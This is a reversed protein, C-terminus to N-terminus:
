SWPPCVQFNRARVPLTSEIPMIGEMGGSMTNSSSSTVAGVGTHQQQQGPSTGAQPPPSTVTNHSPTHNSNFPSNQTEVINNHNHNAQDINLESSPVGEAKDSECGPGVPGSQGSVAAATTNGGSEDGSTPDQQQPQILPDDRTNITEKIEDCQMNTLMVKPSQDDSSIQNMANMSQTITVNTHNPDDNRNHNHNDVNADCNGSLISNTTIEALQQTTNSPTTSTPSQRQHQLTPGNNNNNNNLLPQSSYNTYPSPSNSDGNQLDAPTLHAGQNSDASELQSPSLSAVGAKAQAEAIQKRLRAAATRTRRNPILSETTLPEKCSPCVKEESENLKNKICEECFVDACCYTMMADTM